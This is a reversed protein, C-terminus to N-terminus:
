SWATRARAKQGAELYSPNGMLSLEPAKATSLDSSSGSASFTGRGQDQEEETVQQRRRSLVAVHLGPVQPPQVM